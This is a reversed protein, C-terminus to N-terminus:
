KKAKPDTYDRLVDGLLGFALITIVLAAAPVLLAMPETAMYRQGEAVMVGWSATPPVIGLGM